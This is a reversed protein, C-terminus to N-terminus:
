SHAWQTVARCAARSCPTKCCRLEWDCVMAPHRSLTFGQRLILCASWELVRPTIKSSDLLCRTRLYLATIILTSAGESTVPRRGPKM